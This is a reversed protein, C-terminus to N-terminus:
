DRSAVQPSAHELSKLISQIDAEANAYQDQQAHERLNNITKVGAERNSFNYLTFLMKQVYEGPLGLNTYVIESGGPTKKFEWKGVIHEFRVFRLDAPKNPHKATKFDLEYSRKNADYRVLSHTVSDRNRAGPFNFTTYLFYDFPSRKEIVETSMVNTMWQHLTPGDINVALLTEPPLPTQATYRCANIRSKHQRCEVKVGDVIEPDSWDDLWITSTQKADGYTLPSALLCILGLLKPLAYQSLRDM